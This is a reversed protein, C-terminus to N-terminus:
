RHCTSCNIPALIERYIPDEVLEAGTRGPLLEDQDIIPTTNGMHCKLCWGMTLPTEKRVVDMTEVAGHCNRCDLGALMHQSHDFYAFDALDYVRNWEVPEGKEHYDLLVRIKDVQEPEAPDGQFVSHCNMCVDLSPVTAHAGRDVGTHCYRCNIQLTGAHLRHSFEIPQDPQYGVRIRDPWAAYLTWAAGFVVSLGVIILTLRVRKDFDRHFFSANGSRSQSGM